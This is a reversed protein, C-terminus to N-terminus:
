GDIFSGVWYGFSGMRRHEEEAPLFSGFGFMVAVGEEMPSYVGPVGIRLRNGDRELILYRYSYYGHLLFSNRGMYWLQRPLYKLHRPEIRYFQTGNDRAAPRILPCQRQLMEWDTEEEVAQVQLEEKEAVNESAENEDAITKKMDAAPIEEREKKRERFREPNLEEEDWVTGYWCHGSSKIVIGCLQDFGIREEGNEAMTINDQDRQLRVDVNGARVRGNGLVVGELHENERLFGYITYDEDRKDPLYMHVLLRVVNQRIEAKVFGCNDEKEGKHYRYIYSVFSRYEM